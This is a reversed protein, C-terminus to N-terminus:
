RRIHVRGIARAQGGDATRSNVEVLYVGSPVRLGEGSMANWLLTNAGAECDRASCLTKVPRGAINLVRSSISAASSLTFPVQAGMETQVATLASVRCSAASTGSRVMTVLRVADAASDFKTPGWGSRGARVLAYKRTGAAADHAARVRARIKVSEGAGLPETQWGQGTVDTTIERGEPDLYTIRWAGKSAPGKVVTFLDL